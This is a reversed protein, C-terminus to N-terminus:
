FIFDNHYNVGENRHGGYIRKFTINTLKSKFETTYYNSHKISNIKQMISEMVDVGDNVTITKGIREGNAYVYYTSCDIM